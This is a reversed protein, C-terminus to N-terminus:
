FRGLLRVSAPHVGVGLAPTARTTAPTAEDRPATLWLVAGLGLSVGGVIFAGTAVDALALARESADEGDQSCVDGGPPCEEEASAGEAMAAIGFASGVLLGGLGVGGAVLAGVRQGGMGRERPEAPPATPAPSPAVLPPAAPAAAAALRPIVVQIRARPADAVVRTSWGEHGPAEASVVHEGADVPQPLAWTMPGHVFGDVKVVLDPLRASEPVELTLMSLEPEIVALRELAIQERDGRGDRRAMALAARLEGWAAALKGEKEHCLGLNLLTGGGPQLRQSEALKPCAEAFSGAAMLRRGEDFLSNALAREQETPEAWAALPAATSVVALWGALLCRSRKV